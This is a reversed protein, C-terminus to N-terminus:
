WICEKQIDPHNQNFNYSLYGRNCSLGLLHNLTTGINLYTNNKNTQHLKHIILQSLSSASFLFLANNINNNKVYEPIDKILNYNSIICNNGVEFFKSIKFPLKDLKSNENAVLIVREYTSFIPVINNLFYPYNSNVFINSWTLNKDKESLNIFYEFNEYGVCCRCSVGKYYTSDKFKFAEILDEKIYSHEVSDIYKHDERSWNNPYFQDGALSGNENLALTKGQMIFMEGDSFRLFSFPTKNKLKKEFFKIDEKFSEM